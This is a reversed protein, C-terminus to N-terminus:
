KVAGQLYQIVDNSPQVKDSKDKGFLLIKGKSFVLGWNKDKLLNEIVIRFGAEDYPSKTYGTDLLIYKAERVTPYRYIVERHALHPVLHSQASLSADAPIMQSAKRFEEKQEYKILHGDRLIPLFSYTAFLTVGNVVLFISLFNVLRQKNGGFYKLVMNNNLISKVGFVVGLVLGFALPSSYYVFNVWMAPKTSLLQEFIGPLMFMFYPSLFMLFGGSILVSFFTEVKMSHDFIDKIVYFPDRFLTKLVAIPNSGLNKYFFFGYEGGNLHPVILKTAMILWSLGFIIYFIGLKWYKRNFLILFLGWLAVLNGANEKTSLLLALFIGHWLWKRQEFFDYAFLAMPAILTQPHFPFSLGGRNGLFILYMFVIALAFFGSGVNRRSIRYAPIAGMAVIVIEALILMIPNNWVWYLPAMAILIPSFHAGFVHNFENISGHLSHGFAIKWVGQDYIAFDFARTGFEQHLYINHSGYLVIYGLIMFALWFKERKVNFKLDFFYDIILVWGLTLAFIEILWWNALINEIFSFYGCFNLLKFIDPIFIIALLSFILKWGDKKIKVPDIKKNSFLVIALVALFGLVFFVDGKAQWQNSIFNELSIKNLGVWGLVALLYAIAWIKLLFWAEFNYFRKRIKEKTM